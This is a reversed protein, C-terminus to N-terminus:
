TPDKYTQRKDYPRDIPRNYTPVLFHRPNDTVYFLNLVTHYPSQFSGVSIFVCFQRKVCFWFINM